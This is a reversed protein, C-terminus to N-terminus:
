QRIIEELQKGTMEAHIINKDILDNVEKLSFKVLLIAQLINWNGGGVFRLKGNEDVFKEGVARYNYTQAKKFGVVNKGYEELNPFKPSYLGNRWVLYIERALKFDEDSSREHRHTNGFQSVAHCIQQGCWPCFNFAFDIEKSCHKCQM